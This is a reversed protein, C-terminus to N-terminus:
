ETTQRGRKRRGNTIWEWVRRPRKGEERRRVNGYLKLRRIEMDDDTM